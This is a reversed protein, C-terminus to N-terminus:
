KTTQGEYEKTFVEDIPEWLEVKVGAPDMIWAFRGYEYSEIEGIQEIGQEKLNKLLSDLNEVRFNIMFDRTSPNFYDAPEKFPSWQLYGKKDPNDSQRFEFLSGYQNINLGLNKGYWQRVNEPNECKFFIGGVGTVRGKKM